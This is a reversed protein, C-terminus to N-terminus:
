RAVRQWPSLLRAAGLLLLDALVALVVCLVSATLVQAKFESNLGNFILDGLGGADIIGGVTALAVTSVTAIRLGAMIAPVALPLEVKVLLRTQGMGMGRAAERVDEPVADLGASVNRVLVTLSYAVLIIIVPTTGINTFPILISLLAVSPITYIVTAAGLVVPTLHLRRALVALPVAVVLGILVSVVTLIIHEKTAASLEEQRTRVYEGCVWDNTVLCSAALPHM